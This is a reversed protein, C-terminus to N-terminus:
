SGRGGLKAVKSIILNRSDFQQFTFSNSDKEFKERSYKARRQDRIRARAIRLIFQLPDTRM